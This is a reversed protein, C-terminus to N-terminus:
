IYLSFFVHHIVTVFASLDCIVPKCRGQLMDENTHLAGPWTQGPPPVVPSTMNIYPGMLQMNMNTVKVPVQSKYNGLGPLGAETAIPMAPAQLQFLFDTIFYIHWM